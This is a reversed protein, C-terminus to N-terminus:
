QIVLRYELETDPLLYCHCVYGCAMHFVFVLEPSMYFSTTVLVLSTTELFLSCKYKFALSNLLSM